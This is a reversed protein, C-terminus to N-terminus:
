AILIFLYFLFMIILIMDFDMLIFQIRLQNTDWTIKLLKNISEVLRVLFSFFVMKDHNRFFIIKYPMM